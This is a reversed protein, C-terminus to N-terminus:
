GVWRSRPIFRMLQPDLEGLALPGYAITILDAATETLSVYQGALNKSLHFPIDKWKFQGNSSVLRVETHDPYLIPPLRSPYRRPSATYCRAPPVHGPLGAHPRETNYDHLFAAFRRQQAELSASPPRTAAAKLTKHFREHAGNEAPRGPTTHEPRIGLRVWWFALAGLRGIANPQAFPVGNDSRIVDPLGYDQFARILTQRTAEIATAPLARCALGFHTALDLLTLPYCYPGTALRFEGKFDITWVSNPGTAETRGALARGAVSGRGGSRRRARVLGERKLLSGISSVAPWRTDPEHHVLWDRLKEPGYKPYKKRLAILRDAVAAAMRHPIQHPAHSRDALGGPGEERFRRLIKHGTKESIGFRDCIDVIRQGRDLCARIFELRQQMRSSERWPM